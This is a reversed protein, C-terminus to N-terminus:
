FRHLLRVNGIYAEYDEGLVVDFDLGVETKNSQWRSLRLGAGLRILNEDRAQLVAEEPTNAGGPDMMYTENDMDANFEHLYHARVEPRLEMENSFSEIQSIMSLTAGLSGLASMEDYDDWEKVPFDGPETSTPTETYGDRSYFSGLLSAEPTLLISDSFVPIGMGGGIRISTTYADYEGEYAGVVPSGTTEVESFGDNINLDLFFVDGILSAYGSLYVTDSEGNSGWNGNVTTHAFGGGLGILLKNFRKDLGFAGGGLTAEYGGFDDTEGQNFFSGYGQGWARFALDSSCM